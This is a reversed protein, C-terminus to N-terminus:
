PITCIHLRGYPDITAGTLGAGCLFVSGARSARPAAPAPGASCGPLSNAQSPAVEEPPLRYALPRFSGDLRPHIRGDVRFPVGLEGAFARMEGLERRTLTLAVTKLEVSIGRAVMRRVNERVHAGAGPVRTVAAHVSESQGYLTVEVRAPRYATWLELHRETVLTANTFVVVLFGRRKAAVYIEEFDPRLLPEGGTLALQLTGAHALEDFLRALEEVEQEGRAPASPPCYCHVCRLNCRHTLEVTVSFPVRDGLIRERDRALLDEHEITSLHVM